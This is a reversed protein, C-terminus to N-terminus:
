RQADNGRNRWAKRRRDALENMSLRHTLVFPKGQKAFMGAVKVALATQHWSDALDLQTIVDFEWGAQRLIGSKSNDRRWQEKDTRHHDGQYDLAVRLQPWALDATIGVGNDYHAGPVQYNVIPFPAGYRTLALHSQTEKPSDTHEQALSLAISCAKRRHAFAPEKLANEFDPRTLDTHRFISETLEVMQEIPMFGAMQSWAILPKVYRILGGNWRVVVTDSECLGQRIHSQVNKRLKRKGISSFTVHLTDTDLTHQAPVEIRQLQLATIHSFPARSNAALCRALVDERTESLSASTLPKYRSEDSPEPWQTQATIDANAEPDIRAGFTVYEGM